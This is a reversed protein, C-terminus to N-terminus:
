AELAGTLFGLSMDRNYEVIERAHVFSMPERLAKYLGNTDLTLREELGHQKLLFKLKNANDRLIASFPTECIIALVAGHFTDTVVCEANNIWALTELPGCAINVDCWDHYYGVSVVALGKEGAYARVAEVEDAKNMRRDYAYVVMYPRPMPSSACREQAYGDLLVPDCVIPSLRGTLKAVIMASNQDRVSITQLKSLSESIEKQHVLLEHDGLTTPGFSAAYSLTKENSLGSGYFVPNFGVELSFVEDSGIIIADGDFDSWSGTIRLDLKRFRDLVLRKRINFLTSHLGREKLFHLYAPVGALSVGYKAGDKDLNSYDREFTLFEVDHGMGLLVRQLGYAQLLAGNNHVGYYTLIGIRM